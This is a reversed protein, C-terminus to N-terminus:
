LLEELVWPSLLWNKIQVLWNTEPEDTHVKIVQGNRDREVWEVSGTPGLRVQYASAFGDASIIRAFDAALAPSDIVLGIETNLSASRGDLNMSGVFVRENDIM